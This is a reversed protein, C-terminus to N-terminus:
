TEDGDGLGEFDSRGGSQTLLDQILDIEGSDATGRIGDGDVYFRYRAGTEADVVVRSRYKPLRSDDEKVIAHFLASDHGQTARMQADNSPTVRVVQPRGDIDALMTTSGRYLRREGPPALELRGGVKRTPVNRKFARPDRHHTKFISTLSREPHREKEDTIAIDRRLDVKFGRRNVTERRM